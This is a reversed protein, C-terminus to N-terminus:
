QGRTRLTLDLIRSIRQEADPSGAEFLEDVVGERIAAPVHVGDISIEVEYKGSLTDLVVQEIRARPDIAELKQQLFKAIRATRALQKEASWGTALRNRAYEEDNMYLSRARNKEEPTLPPLQERPVDYARDWDASFTRPARISVQM